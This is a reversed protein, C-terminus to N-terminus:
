KKSRLIHLPPEILSPNASVDKSALVKYATKILIKFDLSFSIHNVYYIDHKLKDDWNLFNRGNVQAWGTIGPKVDHRKKEEKTYYPLYIPLFPRPGVLSMDGKLVNILQPIEDLSAKRVFHGIGTIREADPLLVGESNTTDRMTKFKIIKFLTENKGPRLQFFFPNGKNALFLLLMVTLMIPSLILLLIAAAIIDIVPKIIFIYINKM